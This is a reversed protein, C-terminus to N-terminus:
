DLRETMGWRKRGRKNKGRKEGKARESSGEKEEKREGKNGKVKQRDKVKTQM